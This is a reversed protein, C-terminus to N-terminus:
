KKQLEEQVLLYRMDVHRLKGARRRRVVAEAATADLHAEAQPTIGLAETIFQRIAKTKTVTDVLAILEAEASSQVVTKQTRSSALLAGCAWRVIGGSPSRRTHPCSGWSADCVSEIKGDDGSAEMATEDDSMGIVCRALRKCALWESECPEKTWRTREKTAYAIDQRLRSCYLLNGLVTRFTAAQESNLKEGNNGNHLSRFFVVCGSPLPVRSVFFPFLSRCFLRRLLLLLFRLFARCRSFSPARSRGKSCFQPPSPPLFLFAEPM